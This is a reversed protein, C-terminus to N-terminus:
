AGNTPWKIVVPVSDNLEDAPVPKEVPEVFVTPYSPVRSRLMQPRRGSDSQGVCKTAAVAAFERDPSLQRHEAIACYRRKAPRAFQVCNGATRRSRVSGSRCSFWTSIASPFVIVSTTHAGSAASMQARVERDPMPLEYGTAVIRSANRRNLESLM